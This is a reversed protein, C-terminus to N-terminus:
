RSLIVKEIVKGSNTCFSLFYVGDPLRRGKLDRGNWAVTGADSAPKVSFEHVKYGAASYVEIQANAPSSLAYKITMTRTFPNPFVSMQVGGTNAANVHHERSGTAPVVAAMGEYPLHDHKTVTIDMTDGASTPAIDMVALGTSDTLARAYLPAPLQAPIWCCVLAGAVPTVCDNETVAVVFDTTCAPVITDHAVILSEPQGTWVPMAPDGLLNLTWECHERLSNGETPFRHKCSVLARGLDNQGLVFLGNWWWDCLELSLAFPNGSSYYGDRTNGTYSVGAQLDNYVVFHEAICDSHDCATTKCGISIVNSLLEDNSLLDVDVNHIFGYHNVWGVAMLETEGHDCHGVINQGANLCNLFATRHNTPHSDYVKNAVFQSPLHSAIQEMLIEGHTNADLDMGCLCVELPYQILPPAKEYVLLKDVFRDAEETSGVSVRGVLCEHMWDDNYDSYYQDSPTSEGVYYRWACPVADYEGGLLFYVTGWNVCADEVFQRVQLTDDPGPYNAYIWETTVVTDRLGKKNHWYVLPSFAPELASSTVVVHDFEGPPLFLSRSGPRIGVHVQDPNVVLSRITTEYFARQDGTLVGVTKREKLDPICEMNLEIKRHLVLKGASPVYQVPYLAIMVIPQGAIVHEASIAALKGPYFANAGYIDPDPMTFASNMSSGIPRPEQEPFLKFFGEFDHTSVAVAELRAVKMNLPVAIACYKVPVMPMGPKQMSGANKLYVADYGAIRAFSVEDLDIEISAKVTVIGSAGTVTNLFVLFFVSM